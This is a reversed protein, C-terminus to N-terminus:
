YSKKGTKRKLRKEIGKEFPMSSTIKESTYELGENMLKDVYGAGLRFKFILLAIVMLMGGILLYRGGDDGFATSPIPPLSCTLMTTLTFVRTNTSTTTFEVEVQNDVGNLFSILNNRPVTLSYTFNRSQGATYTRDGVTGIWTIRGNSYSGYSPNINTPLINLAIATSDLTDEVFDIVGTVPGINTVTITYSIAADGDAECVSTSAKVVQFNPQQTTGNTITITELCGVPTTVESAGTGDTLVRVDYTGDAVDAGGVEASEWTFIYTWIGTSPNYSPNNSIVAPAVLVNAPTYFDRGVPTGSPGVRLRINPFPNTAQNFRYQLTYNVTNGVGADIPDEGGEILDICQNPQPSCNTFRFNFNQYLNVIQPANLTCAQYQDSGTSCYNGTGATCGTQTGTSCNTATPGVLAAISQGTPLTGNPLSVSLNQLTMNTTTLNQRDFQFGGTSNTQEYFQGQGPINATVVAGPIQYVPGNGDQCYVNGQFSIQRTQQQTPPECTASTPNTALRCRNTGNVDTCIQGTACNGQQNNANPACIDNCGPQCVQTSTDVCTNARVQCFTGSLPDTGTMEDIQGCGNGGIVGSCTPDVVVTAGEDAESGGTQCRGDTGCGNPCLFILCGASNTCQQGDLPPTTPSCTNNTFTAAGCTASGPAAGQREFDIQYGGCGRTFYQSVDVTQGPQFTGISVPNELCSGNVLGGPCYFMTGTANACQTSQTLTCSVGNCNLNTTEGDDVDQGGCTNGTNNWRVRNENAAQTTDTAHCFFRTCRQENGNNCRIEGVNSCSDYSDFASCLVSASTDEPAQDEQTLKYTIYISVGALILTLFILIGILIKKQRSM